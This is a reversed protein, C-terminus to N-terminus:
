AIRTWSIYSTNTFGGTGSTTRVMNLYFTKTSYVQEVYSFNITYQFNGSVLITNGSGCSQMNASLNDTASSTNVNCCLATTAVSNEYNLAVKVLYTGYRKNDTSYDFTYSYLSINTSGNWTSLFFNPTIGTICEVKYIHGLCQSTPASTRSTKIKTDFENPGLIKTLNNTIKIGASTSSHTCLTLTSLDLATTNYGFYYNRFAFWPHIRKFVLQLTTSFTIQARTRLM